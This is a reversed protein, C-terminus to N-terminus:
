GAQVTEATELRERLACIKRPSGYLGEARIVRLAWHSHGFSRTVKQKKESKVGCEGGYGADEYGVTSEMRGATGQSVLVFGDHTVNSM